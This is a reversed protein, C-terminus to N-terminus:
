KTMVSLDTTERDEGAEKRTKCGRNKGNKRGWSEALSVCDVILRMRLLGGLDLIWQEGGSM